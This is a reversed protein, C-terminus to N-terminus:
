RQGEIEDLEVLAMRLGIVVEPHDHWQDVRRNLRERLQQRQTRLQEFTETISSTLLPMIVPIGSTTLPVHTPGSTVTTRSEGPRIPGGVGWGLCSYLTVPEGPKTPGFWTHPDHGETADCARVFETAPGGDIVGHCWNESFGPVGPAVATPAYRHPAHNETDGCFQAKIM